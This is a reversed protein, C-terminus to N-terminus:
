LPCISKLIYIYLPKASFYTISIFVNQFTKWETFHLTLWQTVNSEKLGWPNCGALSRQEHFKECLFVPSLADEWGLARVWTEKVTPLNKVMQVVLSAREYSRMLFCVFLCFFVVLFWYSDIYNSTNGASLKILVDTRLNLLYYTVVTSLCIRGFILGALLHRWPETSVM